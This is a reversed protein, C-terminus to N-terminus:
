QYAVTCTGRQREEGGVDAFRGVDVKVEVDLAGPIVRRFRRGPREHGRLRGLRDRDSTAIASSTRTVHSPAGWNADSMRRRDPSISRSLTAANPSTARWSIGVTRPRM